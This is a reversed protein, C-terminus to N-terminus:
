FKSTLLESSRSLDVKSKSQRHIQFFSIWIQCVLITSMFLVQLRVMLRCFWNLLLTGKFCRLLSRSALCVLRTVLWRRLFTFSWLPVPIGPRIQPSILTGTFGVAICLLLGSCLWLLPLLHAALLPSFNFMFHVALKSTLAILLGVRGM